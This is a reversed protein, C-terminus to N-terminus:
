RAWCAATEASEVEYRADPRLGKLRVVARPPADVTSFALLVADGSVPQVHEIVDWGSWPVTPYQVLQRSLLFTNGDRIIPRIRKYLSVEKALAARLGATMEAAPRSFGLSGSMRSRVLLPLDFRPDDTVPEEANNDWKLYDAHADDILQVLRGRIWDRAAPDALCGQASEAQANPVSPDYRGEHMALFRSEALGPRGVTALTVREPEVWVGFRMGRQHARDALAGLGNPFRVADVEWTGWNRRFNQADALDIGSWWGADVVFQEVGMAAFADLDARLSGEDIM